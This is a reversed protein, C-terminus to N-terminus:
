LAPCQSCDCTKPIPVKTSYKHGDSCTLLVDLLPLPSLNRCQGHTPTANPCSEQEAVIYFQDDKMECRFNTCNDPSKWEAGLDYFEDEVKCHSQVCQGCCKDSGFTPSLYKYGIKCQDDCTEKEASVTVSGSPTISCILNLCPDSSKWKEGIKKLVSSAGETVICVGKPEECRVVDCCEGEKAPTETVEFFEEQCKSIKPPCLSRDCELRSTPCCGSSDKVVRFGPLLKQPFEEPPPCDDAPKCECIFKTCNNIDKEIKKVQDEGCKPLPTDPCEHQVLEIEEPVCVFKKCCSDVTPMEIARFGRNCVVEEAPCETKTCIIKGDAFCECRNCADKYWIDGAFHDDDCAQCM